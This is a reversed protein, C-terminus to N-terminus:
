GTQPLKVPFSPCGEPLSVDSNSVYLLIDLADLATFGDTCVVNGAAVCHDYPALGAVRRLVSIADEATIMRDCSADGPAIGTAVRVVQEGSSHAFQLPAALDLSGLSNVVSYEENAGGHDIVIEDRAAFGNMNAVELIRDGALAEQSLLSSPPTAQWDPESASAAPLEQPNSGDSNVTWVQPDANPTLRRDFAIQTGDPSWSMSPEWFEAYGFLSKRGTGNANVVSVEFGPPGTTEFVVRQGDPSWAANGDAEPSNTLNLEGSGDPNITIIDLEGNGMNERMATAAIKSGDPSWSPAYEFPQSNTINTQNSGDANMVVIDFSSNRYSAFAIQSGDPSWTPSVDASPSNSVNTQDSGDANM